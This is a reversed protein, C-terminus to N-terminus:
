HVTESHLAPMVPPLTAVRSILERVGRSETKACLSRVHSRITSVAVNMQSAIRPASHGQCLVGLVQEETSTLGHRRAFFCLMLQECVHPRQLLVAVRAGGSAHRRQLPLLALTLAGQDPGQLTLVSRMGRAAKALAAQLLRMHQQQGARLVGHHVGALRTRAFAERAAQNLLAVAGDPQAIVVGYALSEILLPLAWGLDGAPLSADAVFAAESPAAPHLSMDM